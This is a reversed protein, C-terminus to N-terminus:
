ALWHSRRARASPMRSVARRSDTKFPTGIVKAVSWSQKLRKQIATTSVGLKEAWAEISLSEGKYTLVRAKRRPTGLAEAVTWGRKLRWRIVEGSVGLERAWESLPLTKGRFTLESARRLAGQFPTSLARRVSWGENLRTAISWGSAGLEKGWASLSQTKGKFTLLRRKGKRDVPTMAAQRMTMGGDLRKKLTGYDMGLEAAWANISQTRGKYTIQTKRKGKGGRVAFPTSLAKEVSWKRVDLRHAISAHSTRLLKAWEGISRTRGQYTLFRQGGLVAESLVRTSFDRLFTQNVPIGDVQFTEDDIIIPAGDSVHPGQDRAEVQVILNQDLYKMEQLVPSLHRYGGEAAFREFDEESRVWDPPFTPVLLYGHAKDGDLRMARGMAQAMAIKSRKPSAFVVLDIAPVDVGETLCHANTLIFPYESQKFDDMIDARVGMEMRGNVHDVKWKPPLFLECATALRFAYRINKAFILTRQLRYRKMTRVTALATMLLQADKTISLGRKRLTVFMKDDVYAQLMVNKTHPVVLKIPLILDNAIAQTFTLQHFWEGYLSKDDMSAFKTGMRERMTPIKPTATMFLRQKVPLEEDRLCMAFSSNLHTATRHAEDCIGFEFAFGPARRLAQKLVGSSQYLCYIDCAKEKHENLFATVVAPDTTTPVVMDRAYRAIEDRAAAQPVTADSVIILSPREANRAYDERTYEDMLQTILHISHAQILTRRSQVIDRATWYAELSKGSGCASVNTGRRSHKVVFHENAHQLYVPQDNGRTQKPNPRVPAGAIISHIAKWDAPTLDLWEARGMFALGKAHVTKRINRLSTHAVIRHVFLHMRQLTFRQFSDIDKLRIQPIQGQADRHHYKCQVAWFDNANGTTLILDAGEDTKNPHDVRVNIRAWEPDNRHWADVFKGRLAPNTYLRLQVLREFVEGRQHNDLPQM